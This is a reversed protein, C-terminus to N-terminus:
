KQLAYIFVTFRVIYINSATKQIDGDCIAVKDDILSGAADIM